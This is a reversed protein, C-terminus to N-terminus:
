WNLEKGYMDMFLANDARYAEANQILSCIKEASYDPSYKAAENLYGHMYTQMWGPHIQWVRGGHKRLENHALVGFMNMAAKSMCYGFWKNRTCDSVGGAESSINILLKDKGKALLGAFTNAVRLAGLANVNFAEAMADVDLEDFITNDQNNLSEKCLIGANNIIVDLSGTVKDVYSLAAKVSKSCSVDMDVLHVRDSPELGKLGSKDSSGRVGAFVMYGQGMMEKVLSLGLGHSAGSVLAKKDM